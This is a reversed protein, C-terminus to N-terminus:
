HFTRPPEKKHLMPTLIPKTPDELISDLHKLFVERMFAVANPTFTGGWIYLYAQDNSDRLLDFNLPKADQFNSREEFVRPDMVIERDGVATVSLLENSWLKRSEYFSPLVNFVVSLYRLRDKKKRGANKRRLTIVMGLLSFAYSTIVDKNVM